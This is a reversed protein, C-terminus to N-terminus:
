IGSTVLDVETLGDERARVLVLYVAAGKGGSLSHAGGDFRHVAAFGAKRATTYYFGLVDDPTVAVRFNIARVHCHEGDAGAAEQVHGRPYIPFATPMRAAWAATYTLKTLCANGAGLVNGATLAATEGHAVAGSGASPPASQLAGGALQVAEAKAAAAYEAGQEDLPITAAPVGGGTLAAGRQNMGSLDPDIMVPERLAGAMEPDRRAKAAKNAKATCGTLLAVSLLLAWKGM